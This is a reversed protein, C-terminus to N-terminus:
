SKTPPQHDLNYVPFVNASKTRSFTRPEPHGPHDPDPRSRPAECGAPQTATLAPENGRLHRPPLGPCPTFPATTQAARGQGRPPPPRPARPARGHGGQQPKWPGSVRECAGRKRPTKEPSLSWSAALGRWDLWESGNVMTELSGKGSQVPDPPVRLKWINNLSKFRTSVGTGQSGQRVIRERWRPSTSM